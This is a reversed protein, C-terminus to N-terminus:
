PKTTFKRIAHLKYQLWDFEGPEIILHVKKNVNDRGANIWSGDYDLIGCHANSIVVWGPEPLASRVDLWTWETNNKNTLSITENKLEAVAPPAWIKTGREYKYVPVTAGVKNAQMFVFINCKYSGEYTLKDPTMGYGLPPKLASSKAYETSGLHTFAEKVLDIQVQMDTVGVYDPAGISLHKNEYSLPATNRMEYMFTRQELVARIQYIGGEEFIYNAYVGKAGECSKWGLLNGNGDLQNYEWTIKDQLQPATDNDFFNPHFAFKVASGKTILVRNNMSSPDGKKRVSVDVPILRLILSIGDLDEEEPKPDYYVQSYIIHFAYDQPYLIKTYDRQGASIDHGSGAEKLWEQLHVKIDCGDDSILTLLGLYLPQKRPSKEPPSPLTAGAIFHSLDPPDESTVRTANPVKVEGGLAKQIKNAYETESSAVDLPAGYHIIDIAAQRPIRPTAAEGTLASIGGLHLFFFLLLSLHQM